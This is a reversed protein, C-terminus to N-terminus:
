SLYVQIATADSYVIRITGVRHGGCCCFSEHSYTILYQKVAMDNGLAIVQRQDDAINGKAIYESSFREDGSM